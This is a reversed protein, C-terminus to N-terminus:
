DERSRQALLFGIVAGVGIAIGIAKYPHKYVAKHAAKAGAVAQDRLNAAFERGQEVLAGIDEATEPTHTTRKSMNKKTRRLSSAIHHNTIPQTM